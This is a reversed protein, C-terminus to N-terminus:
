RRRSSSSCDLAADDDTSSGRHTVVRLFWVCPWPLAWPSDGEALDALLRRAKDHFPAEERRAYVLVTTDVAIM